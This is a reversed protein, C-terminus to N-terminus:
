KLLAFSLSCKLVSNVRSLQTFIKARDCITIFFIKESFIVDRM